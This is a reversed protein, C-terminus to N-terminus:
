SSYFLISHVFKRQLAFRGKLLVQVSVFLLLAVNHVTLGSCRLLELVLCVASEEEASLYDEKADENGEAIGLLITKQFRQSQLNDLELM